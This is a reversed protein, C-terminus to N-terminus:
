VIKNKGKALEKLRLTGIPNELVERVLEAETKDTMYTDTKAHIVAKLNEEPVHLEMFSRGYPIKITKM